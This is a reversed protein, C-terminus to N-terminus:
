VFVRFKFANILFRQFEAYMLLEFCDGSGSILFYFCEVHSFSELQWKHNSLLRLNYFLVNRLDNYRPCYIIFHREDEIQNFCGVQRCLRQAEPLGLYRGREIELKNTGTRLQTMLTRGKHYGPTLLYKEFRLKSKFLRYTRLKSKNMLEMRWKEEEYNYILKTFYSKLFRKHDVMNKAENNGHGDM